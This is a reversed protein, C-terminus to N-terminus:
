ASSKPQKVPPRTVYRTLGTESTPEGCGHVQQTATTAREKGTDTTRLLVLDLENPPHDIIVSFCVMAM